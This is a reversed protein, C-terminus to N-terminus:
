ALVEIVEHTQDGGSGHHVFTACLRIAQARTAPNGGNRGHALIADRAWSIIQAAAGSRVAESEAATTRPSNPTPAAAVATCRECTAKPSSELAEDDSNAVRLRATACVLDELTSLTAQVVGPDDSALGHELVPEFRGVAAMGAADLLDPVARLRAELTVVTDGDSPTALAVLNDVKTHGVKAFALAVRAGAEVARDGGVTAASRACIQDFKDALTGVSLGRGGSGDNALFHPPFAALASVVGALAELQDVALADGPGAYGALCEDLLAGYTEVETAESADWSLVEGVAAMGAFAHLPDNKAHTPPNALAELLRARVMASSTHDFSPGGGGGGGGGGGAGPSMTAFHANDSAGSATAPKGGGTSRQRPNPSNIVDISSAFCGSPMIPAVSVRRQRKAPSVPRDDSPFLHCCLVRCWAVVPATMWPCFLYAAALDLVAGLDVSWHSSVLVDSLMLGAAEEVSAAGAM